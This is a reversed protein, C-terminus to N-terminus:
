DLGQILDQSLALVKGHIDPFKEAGHWSNGQIHVPVRLLSTSKAKPSALVDPFAHLVIQHSRRDMQVWLPM